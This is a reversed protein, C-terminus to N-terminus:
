CLKFMFLNCIILIGKTEYYKKLFDQIEIDEYFTNKLNTM